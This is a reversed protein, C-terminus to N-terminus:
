FSVKGYIIYIMIHCTLRVYCERFIGIYPYVINCGFFSGNIEIQVYNLEVNQM